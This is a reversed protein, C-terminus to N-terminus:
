LKYNQHTEHILRNNISITIKNDAGIGIIIENKGGGRLEPYTARLWAFDLNELAEKLLSIESEIIETNESAKLKFYNSILRNYKRKVATQICSKNLNLNIEM